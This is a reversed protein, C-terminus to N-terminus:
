AERGAPLRVSVRAGAGPKSEIAAGGGLFACRERIGRLGAGGTKAAADFGRGDDTVSMSVWGDASELVVGVERAGAHRRVNNLAEQLVRLLCPAAKEPVCLGAPASFSTEIGSAREFRETVARLADGLTTAGLDVPRLDHVVRRLDAITAECLESARNVHAQADDPRTGALRLEIQVASLAQGIGDHIDRAIRGREEEQISVVRLSLDRVEATAAAVRESLGRNAAKLGSEAAELRRLTDGVVRAQRRVVSAPYFFLALGLAVGLASSVGAVAALVSIEYGHDMRVQVWAATRGHVSVPSWGFPGGKRGTTVGLGETSFMLRGACDTVRADAVDRQGPRFLAARVIKGSNYRWLLPEREVIHRLSEGVHGAYIKAQAELKGWAVIRYIAPPTAAMVAAALVSLPLMRRTFHRYLANEPM